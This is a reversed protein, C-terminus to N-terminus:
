LLYDVTLKLLTKNRTNSYRRFGVDAINKTSM